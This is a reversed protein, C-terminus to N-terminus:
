VRVAMQINCRQYPTERNLVREFGLKHYLRIAPELKTNSELYVQKAGAAKAAELVRQGLLWGIGRGQAKPSVAMKALEYDFDPDDMKIMACAGVPEGDMLAIFIQGGKDLIYEQPHDLSKYDSPEMDFYRSIWEVNLDRFANKYIPQYDVIQM